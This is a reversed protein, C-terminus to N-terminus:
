NLVNQVTLKYNCLDLLISVCGTIYVSCTTGMFGRCFNFSFIIILLNKGFIEVVNNM